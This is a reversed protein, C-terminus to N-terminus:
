PAEIGAIMYVGGHDFPVHIIILSFRGLEPVMSMLTQWCSEALLLTLDTRQDASDSGTITAARLTEDLVFWNRRQLTQKSQEAQKSHIRVM